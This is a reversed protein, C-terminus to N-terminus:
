ADTWVKWKITFIVDPLIFNDAPFVAPERSALKM